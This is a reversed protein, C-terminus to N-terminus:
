GRTGLGTYRFWPVLSGWCVQVFSMGLLLPVFESFHEWYQSKLLASVLARIKSFKRGPWSAAKKKWFFHRQDKKFFFNQWAIVSSKSSRRRAISSSRSTGLDTYRFQVLTGSSFWHVRSPRRRAISSSRLTGLGTYRFQVLTGKIFAEESNPQEEIYRFWQVQVLTGLSFWQVQVFSTGYLCAAERFQVLIGFELTCLSFQVLSCWHGLRMHLQVLDLRCQVLSSRSAVASSSPCRM